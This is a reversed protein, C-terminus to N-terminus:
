ILNLYRFMVGYCYVFHRTHLVLFRYIGTFLYVRRVLEIRGFRIELLIVNIHASIQSIISM